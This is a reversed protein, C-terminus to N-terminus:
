RKFSHTILGPQRHSPRLLGSSLREDLVLCTFMRCGHEAVWSSTPGNYSSRARRGSPCVSRMCVM